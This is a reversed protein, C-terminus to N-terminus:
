FKSGIMEEIQSRNFRGSLLSKHPDRICFNYSGKYDKEHFGSFEWVQQGCKECEVMKSQVYTPANAQAAQIGALDRQSKEGAERAQAQLKERAATEKDVAAQQKSLLEAKRDAYGGAIAEALQSEAFALQQQFPTIKQELEAIRFKAEKIDQVAKEGRRQAWIRDVKAQQEKGADIRRQSRDALERTHQDAAAAKEALHKQIGPTTNDM